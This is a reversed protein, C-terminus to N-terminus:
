NEDCVKLFSLVAQAMLEDSTLIDYKTMGKPINFKNINRKDFWDQFKDWKHPGSWLGLDELAAKLTQVTWKPNRCAWKKGIWERGCSCLTYRYGRSMSEIKPHVIIKGTVHVEMEAIERIRACTPCPTYPITLGGGNAHTPHARHFEPTSGQGGCDPCEGKLRTAVKAFAITLEKSMGM